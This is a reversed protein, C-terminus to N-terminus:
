QPIWLIYFLSVYHAIFSRGHCPGVFSWIWQLDIISPSLRLIWNLIRPWMSAGDIIADLNWLIYRLLIMKLNDRQLQKNFFSYRDISSQPKKIRFSLHPFSYFHHFKKLRKGSFVFSLRRRSLLCCENGYCYCNINLCSFPSICELSSRFIFELMCFLHVNM